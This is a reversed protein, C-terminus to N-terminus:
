VPIRRAALESRFDQDALLEFTLCGATDYTLTYMRGADFGYRVFTNTHETMTRTRLPDLVEDVANRIEEASPSRVDEGFRKTGIFWPASM